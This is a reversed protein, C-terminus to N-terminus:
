YLNRSCINRKKKEDLPIKKLLRLNWVNYKKILNKDYIGLLKICWQFDHKIPPNKNKM